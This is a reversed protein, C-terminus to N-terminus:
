QKGVMVIRFAYVLQKLLPILTINLSIWTTLFPPSPTGHWCM